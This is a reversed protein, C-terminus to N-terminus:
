RDPCGGSATRAGAGSPEAANYTTAFLTRMAEATADDSVEVIRAVGDVFTDVSETTVVREAAFSMAMAPAAEAVVGVIEAQLGLLDRVGILGSIGPGVGVPVYVADLEGVAVFL